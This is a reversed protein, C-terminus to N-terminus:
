GAEFSQQWDNLVHWLTAPNAEVTTGLGQVGCATYEDWCVFFCLKGVEYFVGLGIFFDDKFDDVKARASLMPIVGRARGLQLLMDDIGITSLASEVVKM